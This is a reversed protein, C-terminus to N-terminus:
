AVAFGGLARMEEPKFGPVIDTKPIGMEGLDKDILIETNNQQVWVKGNPKLDFHMLVQYVFKYGSWGMSLLQFHGGNEDVIAQYEISNGLANNREEALKKVYNALIQAYQNANM